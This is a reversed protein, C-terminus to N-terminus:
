ILKTALQQSSVGICLACYVVGWMEDDTDMLKKKSHNIANLYEKLEYM